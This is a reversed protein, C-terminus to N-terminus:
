QDLFVHGVKINCRSCFSFIDGCSVILYVKSKGPLSKGCEDCRMM